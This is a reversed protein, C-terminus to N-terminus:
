DEITPNNPSLFPDARVSLVGKALVTVRFANPGPPDPMEDDREYLLGWAGPLRSRVFEVVEDVFTGEVRRRRNVLGTLTLYPQGNVTLVAAELSPLSAGDVLQRLESVIKALGGLDAEETSEALSFWGHVEYM